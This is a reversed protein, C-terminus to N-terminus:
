DILMLKKTEIDYDTGNENKKKVKWFNKESYGKYDVFSFEWLNFLTKAKTRQNHFGTKRLEHFLLQFALQTFYINTNVSKIPESIKPVEFNNEYFYTIWKILKNFDNEHDLIPKGKRPCNGLMFNFHKKIKESLENENLEIKPEKIQQPPLTEIKLFESFMELRNLQVLLECFNFLIEVPKSANIFKEYEKFEFEWYENKQFEDINCEILSLLEVEKFINIVLEEIKPKESDPYIEWFDDEDKIAEISLEAINKYKCFAKTIPDFAIINNEFEESFKHLWFDFREYPEIYNHLSEPKCSLLYAYSLGEFGLESIKAKTIEIQEKTVEHKELESNCLIYLLRDKDPYFSHIKDEFYENIFAIIFGSEFIQEKMM